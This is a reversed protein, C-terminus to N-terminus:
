VGPVDDRAGQVGVPVGVPVGPVGVPAGPVGVPVGPVGVSVIPIDAVDGEDYVVGMVVMMAAICSRLRASRVFFLVAWWPALLQLAASCVRVCM